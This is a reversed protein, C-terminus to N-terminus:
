LLWHIMFNNDWYYRLMNDDLVCPKEVRVDKSIKPANFVRRIQCRLTRRFGSVLASWPRVGSSKFIVVFQRFHYNRTSNLWLFLVIDTIRRFREFLRCQRTEKSLKESRTVVSENVENKKWVRFCRWNNQFKM